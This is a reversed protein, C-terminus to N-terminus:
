NAELPAESNTFNTAQIDYQKLGESADKVM